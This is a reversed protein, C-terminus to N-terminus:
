YVSQSEYHNLAVQPNLINSLSAEVHPTSSHDASRRIPPHEERGGSGCGGDVTGVSCSVQM